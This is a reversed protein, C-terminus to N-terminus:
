KTKSFEEDWIENWKVLLENLLDIRGCLRVGEIGELRKGMFPHYSAKYGNLVDAFRDIVRARAESRDVTMESM